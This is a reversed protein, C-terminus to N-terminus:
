NNFSFRIVSDCGPSLIACERAGLKEICWPPCASVCSSFITGEKPFVRRYIEMSEVCREASTGEGNNDLLFGGEFDTRPPTTM